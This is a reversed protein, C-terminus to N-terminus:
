TLAGATLGAVIRRQFLLVLLMPGRADGRAAPESQPSSGCAMLSVGLATAATLHGAKM